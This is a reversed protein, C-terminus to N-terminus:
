KSFTAAIEFVWVQVVHDSLMKLVYERLAPDLRDDVSWVRLNHLYGFLKWLEKQGDGPATGRAYLKWQEMLRRLALETPMTLYLRQAPQREPADSAVNDDVDVDEPDDTTAETTLWDLGLAQAAVNFEPVEGLLEFVLCREPIVARPDAAVTVDNAYTALSTEAKTFVQGLREAQRDYPIKKPFRAKRGKIRERADPVRNLRVIPFDTPM